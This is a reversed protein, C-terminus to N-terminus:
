SFGQWLNVAINVLAQWCDRNQIQCILDMGEWGTERLDIKINGKWRHRPRGLPMKEEPKEFLIEFM